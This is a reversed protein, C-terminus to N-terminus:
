SLNCIFVCIFLTYVSLYPHLHTCIPKCPHAPTCSCLRVVFCPFFFWFCALLAHKRGRHGPFNGRVHHKQTHPTFACLHMWIIASPKLHTYNSAYTRPFLCVLYFPGPISTCPTNQLVYCRVFFASLWSPRDRHGSLIIRRFLPSGLPAHVLIFAFFWCDLMFVFLPGSFFAFCVISQPTIIAFVLVFYLCVFHTFFLGIFLLLVVFRVASRLMIVINLGSRLFFCM